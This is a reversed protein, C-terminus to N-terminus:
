LCPKVKASNRGGGGEWGGGWWYFGGVVSSGKECQVKRLWPSVRSGGSLTRCCQKINLCTLSTFHVRWIM